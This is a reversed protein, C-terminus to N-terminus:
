AEVGPSMISHPPFAPLSASVQCIQVYASPFECYVIVKDPANTKAPGSGSPRPSPVLKDNKVELPPQDDKELHHKLIEVLADLKRSPHQQWEEL